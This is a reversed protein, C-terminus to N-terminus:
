ETLEKFDQLDVLSKLKIKQGPKKLLVRNKIVIESSAICAMPM